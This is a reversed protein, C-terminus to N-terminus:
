SATFRRQPKNVIDHPSSSMGHGGKSTLTALPCNKGILPVKRESNALLCDFDSKHEILNIALHKPCIGWIQHYDDM